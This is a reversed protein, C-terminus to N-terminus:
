GPPAQPWHEAPLEKCHVPAVGTHRVLAPLQTRQTALPSQEPAVGIQSPPLWVQRAHPPSPSHPPTVDAQWDPPAQPCHEAM